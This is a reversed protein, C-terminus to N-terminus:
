LIHTESLFMDVGNLTQKRKSVFFMLADLIVSTNVHSEAGFVSVHSIEIGSSLYHTSYKKLPCDLMDTVAITSVGRKQAIELAKVIKKSGGSHSVGIVVDGYRALNINSLELEDSISNTTAVGIRGLRFCFELISPITNGSAIVHVTNAGAILDVCKLFSEENLVQSIALMNQAMGQFFSSMNDIEAKINDAKEELSHMLMIKLQYFGKYGLKKSMRVVTAESTASKSAIEVVNLSDIKDINTLIFEAVRRESTSLINLNMKINELASEVLNM